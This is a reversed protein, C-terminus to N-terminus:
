AAEVKMAAATLPAKVLRTTKAALGAAALDEAALALGESLPRRAASAALRDVWATTLYARATSELRGAAQGAGALRRRKRKAEADALEAEAATSAESLRAM